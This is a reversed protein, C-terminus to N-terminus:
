GAKRKARKKYLVYQIQSHIQKELENGLSEKIKLQENEAVDSVSPGWIEEIPLRKVRGSGREARIFVGKHGQKMKTIFAHRFVKRSEGKWFKLTIGLKLRKKGRGVAFMKPMFAIGPTAKNSLLLHGEWLSRTAKVVKIGRGIYKKQMTSVKAIKNKVITKGRSLTKNIGRSMVGPLEKPVASLMGAVRSIQRKDYKIELDIAM